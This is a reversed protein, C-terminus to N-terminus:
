GVCGKNLNSSIYAVYNDLIRVRARVVVCGSLGVIGIINLCLYLQCILSPNVLMYKFNSHM